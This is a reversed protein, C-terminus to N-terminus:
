QARLTCPGIGTVSWALEKTWLSPAWIPTSPKVYEEKAHCGTMVPLISKRSNNAPEARNLWTAAMFPKRTPCGISRRVPKSMKVLSPRLLVISIMSFCFGLTKKIAGCQAGQLWIVLIWSRMALSWRLCFNRGVNYNQQRIAMNWSSCPPGKMM